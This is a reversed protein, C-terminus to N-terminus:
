EDAITAIRESPTAHVEAGNVALEVVGANSLSVLVGLVASADLGTAQAIEEVTGKGALVLALVQAAAGIDENSSAPPADPQASQQASQKAQGSSMIDLYTGISSSTM